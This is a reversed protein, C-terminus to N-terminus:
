QDEGNNSALKVVKDALGLRKKRAKEFRERMEQNNLRQQIHESVAERIVDKASANYNAVCFDRLMSAVPEGLEYKKDNYPKAM